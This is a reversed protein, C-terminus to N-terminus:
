NNMPLGRAGGRGLSRRNHQNTRWHSISISCTSQQKSTSNEWFGHESLSLLYLVVGLIVEMALGSFNKGGAVPSSFDTMVNVYISFGFIAHRSVM